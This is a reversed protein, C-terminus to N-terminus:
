AQLWKKNTGHEIQKAVKNCIVLRQEVIMINRSAFSIHFMLYLGLPSNRKVMCLPNNRAFCISM